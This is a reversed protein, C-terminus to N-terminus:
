ADTGDTEPITEMPCEGDYQGGESRNAGRSQFFEKVNEGLGGGHIAGPSEILGEDKADHYAAQIDEVPLDLLDEVSYAGTNVLLAIKLAEGPNLDYDTMYAEVQAKLDADLATRTFWSGRAPISEIVLTFLADEDMALLEDVTWTSDEQNTLRVIAAAVFIDVGYEDAFAEVETVEEELYTPDEEAQVDLGTFLTGVMVIAAMSLAFGTFLKKM